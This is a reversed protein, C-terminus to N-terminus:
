RCLDLRDGVQARLRFGAHGQNVALEWFGHSSPIALLDGPQADAYCQRCAITQGQHVLHNGGLDLPLDSILNGFHDIAQVSGRWGSATPALPPLDLRVLTAPDLPAGLREPGIGRALHAAVPAFIDRGQFSASPQPSRWLNPNALSWAATAPYRDLVGTFIGNDPGVLWGLDCRIAISRRNSGVGPDVVALHVAGPPCYPLATLLQFRAAWRDQPPIGHCLDLLTAEPAIAWIVAKMVGVYNDQAGFDTLLTILGM